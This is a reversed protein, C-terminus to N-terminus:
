CKPVHHLAGSMMVNLELEGLYGQSRMGKQMDSYSMRVPFFDSLQQLASNWCIQKRSISQSREM